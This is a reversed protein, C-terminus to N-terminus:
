WTSVISLNQKHRATPGPKRSACYCHDKRTHMKAIANLKLTNEFMEFRVKNNKRSGKKKGKKFYQLGIYTHGIDVM